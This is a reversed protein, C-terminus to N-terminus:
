RREVKWDSYHRHGDVLIGSCGVLIRHFMGMWIRRDSGRALNSVTVPAAEGHSEHWSGCWGEGLRWGAHCGSSCGAVDGGAYGGCCRGLKRSQWLSSLRGGGCRSGVMSGGSGYRNEGKVDVM